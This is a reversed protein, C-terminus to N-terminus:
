ELVLRQSLKSDLTSFEAIYIGKELSQPLDVEIVVFGTTQSELKKNFVIRGQLDYLILTSNGSGNLTTRISLIGDRNPNPYFTTPTSPLDMLVSETGLLTQTGDIDEQILRYYSRNNLPSKDLYSYDIREFSNGVSAVEVLDDYSFGDSSRQIYFLASNYEIATAWTLNVANGKAAVEFYLLEVPLPNVGSGLSGFTFPSFTSVGTVTISGPDSFNISSQGLNEWETGTYHAIQLDASNDIVSRTQDKWFLTVDANTATGFNTLNWYELGSVNNLVGNPDPTKLTTIDPHAQAIYEALFQISAAGTLNTVSIPQWFNADGVPFEFDTNGVKLMPGNVFSAVSAGSTSAGAALRLLDISTSEIEGNTLTLTGNIIVDGDLTLQPSSIRTNDVTVDFYTFTDGSGSGTTHPFNQLNTTSNFNVTTGAVTSLVGYAPSGRVVDKRLSLVATNLLSIENMNDASAIYTLDETITLTSNDVTIISKPGGTNNLTLEETTTLTSSNTLDVTNNNVGATSNIIFGRNISLASNDITVALNATGGNRDIVFDDLISLTSNTVSVSSNINNGPNTIRLLGSIALAGSATISLDTASTAANLNVEAAVESTGTITVLHGEINVVDGAQPYDAAAVGGVGITSWTSNTTWPGDARSYYIEDINSVCLTFSGDYSTNFADVSIYYDNGITLGTNTISVDENDFSYRQCDVETIGDAEWLAMQTRRQGGQAGGRDVTITVNPSIATFKFWRNFRPGSNNWCSGALQDATGGITTFEANVSCWNNLDTLEIAGEYYDYSPSDDVCLTFSGDYSTNFADVSIYYTSGPNLTGVAEVVVNETDFAYRKCAVQSTGNAQWIGIQTRRQGGKSGGREVTVRIGDTVAVFYFWRNYRPGSNNWCSGAIQDATGGVTTYAADASCFNNIDPIEIAGEYFDYTIDNDALCLTFSGDYSTNFADVSIYYTNGITLGGVIELIADEDNFAYLKCGVETTGDAEWLALQTRRQSGKTGGRDVTVKINATTAVFSFWRNYRPGTNNWCSGALQDATGGVTTYAADASCSNMISNVDIAGEYFDYSIDNDALCLTFTGDYSTNFADVSIYYTDGMTLTGVAELIVDEDNFAYLKCGVETTGDAEWLALQTRRQSGKTGGRDVTIKINATTAVFSFWVNFQPGSNNWCSGALQDPTGNITTYAADASCSNSGIAIANAFDDNAPQAFSPFLIFILFGITFLQKLFSMNLIYLPKHLFLLRNEFISNKKRYNGSNGSINIRAAINM